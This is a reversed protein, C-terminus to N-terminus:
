IVMTFKTSTNSLTEAIVRINTINEKLSVDNIWKGKMTKQIEKRELYINDISQSLDVIKANLSNM